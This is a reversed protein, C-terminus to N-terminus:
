LKAFLGFGVPLVLYAEDDPTVIMDGVSTSRCSPAFARVESNLTWDEDTHNTLEYARELDDTEVEAVLVYKTLTGAPPDESVPWVFNVAHYVRLVNEKSQRESM